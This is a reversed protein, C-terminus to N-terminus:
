IREVIAGNEGDESVEVFSADYAEFLEQAIMECSKNTSMGEYKGRLYGEVKEKFQFFEIARDKHAVEMGIRVHFMHRHPSRLFAVDDPAKPWAHLAEFQTRIWITTKVM